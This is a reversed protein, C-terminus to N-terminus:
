VEHVSKARDQEAACPQRGPGNGQDQESWALGQRAIAGTRLSSAAALWEKAKFAKRCLRLYPTADRESPRASKRRVQMKCWCLPTKGAFLLAVPFAASFSPLSCRSLPNRRSDVLLRLSLARCFFPRCPSRLPRQGSVAACIELVDTYASEAVRSGPQRMMRLLWYAAAAWDRRGVGLRAASRYMDLVARYNTAEPRIKHDLRMAVLLDEGATCLTEVLEVVHQHMGSLRERSEKGIVADRYAVRRRSRGYPVVHSGSMAHSSSTGQTYQSGVGPVSMLDNVMRDVGRALGHLFTSFSRLDPAVGDQRMMHTLSIMEQLLRGRAYIALLDGGASSAKAMARVREASLDKPPTPLNYASRLRALGELDLDRMRGAPAGAAARACSHAVANYSIVSPRLGRPRARLVQLVRWARRVLIYGHVHAGKACTHLFANYTVIDSNVSDRRMRAMIQLARQSGGNPLLSTAAVLSNYSYVDLKVGASTVADMIRLALKFDQVSDGTAKLVQKILQNVLIVRPEVGAECMNLVLTLAVYLAEKNEQAAAGVSADLLLDYSRANPAVGSMWMITLIRLANTLGAPGLGKYVAKCCLQLATNLQLLSPAREESLAMELRGLESEMEGDRWSAIHIDRVDPLSVHSQDQRVSSPSARSSPEWWGYEFEEDAEIQFDAEEGDFVVSGMDHGQRNEVLIPNGRADLAAAWGMEQASGDDKRHETHDDESSSGGSSDLAQALSSLGRAAHTRTLWLRERVGQVPMRLPLFQRGPMGFCAAHVPIRGPQRGWVRQAFALACVQERRSRHQMIRVGADRDVDPQWIHVWGRPPRATLSATAPALPYESGRYGVALLHQLALLFWSFALPRM